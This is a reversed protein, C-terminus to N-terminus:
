VLSARFMWALIFLERPLKPERSFIYEQNQIKASSCIYLVKSIWVQVKISSLCPPRLWFPKIARNGCLVVRLSCLCVAKSEQVLTQVATSLSIRDLHFWTPFSTLWSELTWNQTVVPLFTLVAASGVCKCQPPVLSQWASNLCVFFSLKLHEM